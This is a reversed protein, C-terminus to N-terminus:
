IILLCHLVIINDCREKVIDPDTCLAMYGALVNSPTGLQIYLARQLDSHTGPLNSPINFKNVLINKGLNCSKIHLQTGPGMYKVFLLRQLKYQHKNYYTTSPPLLVRYANVGHFVTFSFLM